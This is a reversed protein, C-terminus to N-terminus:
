VCTYTQILDALEKSSGKHKKFSAKSNHSQLQVVFICEYWAKPCPFFNEEYAGIVEYGPRTHSFFCLMPILSLCWTGVLGVWFNYLVEFTRLMADLVYVHLGVQTTFAKWHMPWVM